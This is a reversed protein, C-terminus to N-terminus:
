DFLSLQGPIEQRRPERLSRLQTALLTAETVSLNVSVWGPEDEFFDHGTVEFDDDTVIVAQIAQRLEDAAVQSNLM